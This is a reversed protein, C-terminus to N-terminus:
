KIQGERVMAEYARSNEKFHNLEYNSIVTYRSRFFDERDAQKAAPIRAGADASWLDCYDCIDGTDRTYFEFLIDSTLGDDISLMDNESSYKGLLYLSAARACTFLKDECLYKCKMSFDCRNYQEKLLAKDRGRAAIGGPDNWKMDQQIRVNVGYQDMRAIFRSMQEFMGYDSVRVLARSAALKEMVSDGPIVTANTVVVIQRIKDQASVFDLMEEFDPAVFPEGGVLECFIMERSAALIRELSKKTKTNDLEVPHASFLPMLNNCKECNLSCRTTLYVPLYPVTIGECTEARRSHEEVFQRRRSLDMHNYFCYDDYCRRILQGFQKERAASKDIEIMHMGGLSLGPLYGAGNEGRGMKGDRTLGSTGCTGEALSLEFDM